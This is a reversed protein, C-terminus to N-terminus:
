WDPLLFARRPEPALRDGDLVMEGPAVRLATADMLWHLEGIQKDKVRLQAELSQVRARLEDIALAESVHAENQDTELRSKHSDQQNQDADSPSDMLRVYWRGDEKYGELTGRAIRKRIADETIGMFQAARTSDVAEPQKDQQSDAQRTTTM